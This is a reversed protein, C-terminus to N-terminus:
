PTESLRSRHVLDSHYCTRLCRKVREEPTLSMNYECRKWGMFNAWTRKLWNFFQSLRSKTGKHNREPKTKPGIHKDKFSYNPIPGLDFGTDHVTNMEAPMPRRLGKMDSPFEVAELFSRYAPPAMATPFYLLWFIRVLQFFFILHNQGGIMRKQPPQLIFYMTPSQSHGLPAFFCANLKMAQSGFKSLEQSAYLSKGRM